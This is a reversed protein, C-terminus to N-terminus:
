EFRTTHNETIKRATKFTAAVALVALLISMALVAYYAPDPWSITRRGETLGALIAWAVLFGLSICVGFVSALPLATEGVIIRRLTRAPMGTLRLLGFVRRRDLIGATTAVALSIASILTAVLIALNALDAFSRAISIMDTSQAEGRTRPSDVFPIGSAVAATRARELGEETGDTEMLVIPQSLENPDVHPAEAATIAENGLFGPNLEVFEAHKIGDGKTSPILGLAEADARHFFPGGLSRHYYGLGVNQISPSQELQALENEPPASHTSIPGILTSMSLHQSDDVPGSEQQVTTISAAIVSVLFLALVLGSVSRFTARPTRSIRNLAIVGAAGRAFRLAARSIIYTIYTGAYLLGITTLIFGAILVLDAHPVKLKNTSAVGISVMSSVGVALPLLTVLRPKREHQQKSNGLPGIEARRTRHWAVLTTALVTGVVVVGTSLPGVFLDSPFFSGEDISIGAALPVFFLALVVGVLAGAFSTIATETAAIRAVTRPTAGILRLTAFRERRETAGLDAVIGVLLLVPILVAIGGIVAVTQYAPNGGFASGEFNSVVMVSPAAALEDLTQGVVIVLSDPSALAGDPLAGMSNGYRQGLEDPPVSGIMDALAPSALYMGPEPIHRTGPISLSAGQPAAVNMRTIIRGEFYDYSVAALVQDRGVESVGTTLPEASAGSLQTWASRQDREILGNYSGLLLLFLAVGVAVGSSIGALRWKSEQNGAVLLKTVEVSM